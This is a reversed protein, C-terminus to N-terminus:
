MRSYRRFIKNKYKKNEGGISDSEPITRAYPKLKREIV